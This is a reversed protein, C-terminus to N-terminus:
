KVDIQKRKAEETKPLTVRLVGDEYKAEVRDADVATPLQVSRYFKGFYREERYSESKEEKPEEKREGAISLVDNELSIDIDEKKLGPIEVRATLKENDEYLDLAPAWGQFLQPGAAGGFFPDELLQSLEDRVDSLRGFPFWEGGNIGREPATTRRKVLAM